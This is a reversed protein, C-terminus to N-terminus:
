AFPRCAYPNIVAAAMDMTSPSGEGDGAEAFALEWTLWRRCNIGSDPRTKPGEIAVVRQGQRATKQDREELATSTAGIECHRARGRRLQRREDSCKPPTTPGDRLSM